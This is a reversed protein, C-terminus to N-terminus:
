LMGVESLKSQIIAEDFPKMIYEDAGNEMAAMIHDLDNETTCLIVVPQERGYKERLAQLCELGNMVPMNWDLLVVDPMQRECANMADQGDQAEDVEFQLQEMMGRTIRRVVKSDDVILCTKM